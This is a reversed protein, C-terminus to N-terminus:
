NVGCYPCYSGIGVKSFTSLKVLKSCCTFEVVDYDKQEFLSQPARTTIPKGAKFKINKSKRLSKGYGKITDNIMKAMEEEVAARANDIMDETLFESSPGPIGCSPCFIDLVHDQEVDGPILKFEEKCLTCQFSSFGDHDTQKTIILHKRM